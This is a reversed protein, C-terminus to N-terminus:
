GNKSEFNIAKHHILTVRTEHNKYFDRHRLGLLSSQHRRVVEQLYQTLTEDKEAEIKPGFHGVELENGSYKEFHLKAEVPLIRKRFIASIAIASVIEFIKL